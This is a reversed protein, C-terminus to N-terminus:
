LIGEGRRLLVAKTVGDIGRIEEVRNEIGIGEAFVAVEGIDLNADWEHVSYSDVYVTIGMAMTSALLFCLLTVGRRRKSHFAEYGAPVAAM